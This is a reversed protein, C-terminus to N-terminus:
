AQNALITLKPAQATSTVTCNRGQRKAAYLARDAAYVLSEESNISDDLTSVGLSVTIPILLEPEGENALKLTENALVPKHAGDRFPIWDQTFEFLQEALVLRIREALEYAVDMPAGPLIIALEEGGYRAVWDSQRVLQPMLLGLWRLVADGVQHGYTDNVTKFHDIDLLIFSLPQGLRSHLEIQEHLIRQMERRNYLGTLGDRRALERLASEARKRDTIDRAVVCLVQRGGFTIRSDSVEVNVVAGDKRIYKREVALRLLGTTDRSLLGTKAGEAEVIDALKLNALEDLSYGLLSQFAANAEIFHGSDADVLFIAERTQEVVARYREEGERQEERSSHLVSLMENISGALGSLEDTGDMTVRASTDSSTGIASVDRRLRSLRSLVLGKLLFAVVLGWLIGVGLLTLVYYQLTQVGRQYTARTMQAELVFAPKGFVDNLLYYADLQADSRPRIQLPADPSLVPVAEDPVGASQLSSLPTLSLGILTAKALHQVADTDLFRGFILTGNIDGAGTSHMIPESAILMPGESLAIIGKISSAATPHKLLVNNLNVQTILDQPFTTKEGARYDASLASVVGGETDIFLMINLHNSVMPLIDALNSNFYADNHDALYQYTDDWLSWDRTTGELTALDDDLASRVRQVDRQANENELTSFSGLVISDSALYLALISIALTLAIVGMTKKQLTM